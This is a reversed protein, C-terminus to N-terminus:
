AAAMLGHSIQSAKLANALAIVSALDTADAVLAARNAGNLQVDRRTGTGLAETFVELINTSWKFGGRELNSADTFTNYINFAQANADNRLGLTNAADRYLRVDLDVGSQPLSISNAWTLIGDSRLELIGGLTSENGVFVGRGSRTLMLGFGAAYGIGRDNGFSYRQDSAITVTGSKNVNFKTSGGVKLDMLLSDAASATDTVDMGIATFATAAENWTQTLTLPQSTTITGAAFPVTGTAFHTGLTTLTARRSAGGDNVYLEDTGTLTTTETLASLKTDAM